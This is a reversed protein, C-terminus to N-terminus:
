QVRLGNFVLATIERIIHDANLAEDPALGAMFRAEQALVAYTETMAWIHFQLLLPDVPRILGQDSWAAILASARM